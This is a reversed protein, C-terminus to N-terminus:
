ALTRHPASADSRRIPKRYREPDNEYRRLFSELLAASEDWDFRRVYENGAQALGVRRADETLLKVINGAMAEVDRPPSVLATQGHIAFDESGGNDTTALACGCAMAEISPMGFGEIISASVFLSSGNYIDRVIVEQDPNRLYTIWDPIQHELAWTGFLVATLEPVREKARELAEIAFVAGKTSHPSYCAAIRTPRNEIPQMVRYKDHKIGHPAYVLQDGPVGARRGLELLWRAVCVQPCPQTFVTEDLEPRLINVGQVFVVPLGGEPPFADSFGFVFDARPLETISGLFYHQLGDEFEFWTLEDIGMVLEGTLSVHIVNVEHQRRVLANAFEYLTAVGGVPERTSPVIFTAIM